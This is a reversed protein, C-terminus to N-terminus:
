TRVMTEPMERLFVYAVVAMSLIEHGVVQYAFELGQTATLHICTIAAISSIGFLFNATLTIPERRASRHTRLERFFQYCLLVYIMLAFLSYENLGPVALLADYMGHAVVILLFVPLFALGHTRPSWVARCLALGALGTAAIHFFNATLYRAVAIASHSAQFYGMNEELAFGLGVCGAVVLMELESRRRVLLPVLPLFLLLKCLEERLGVGVVYYAIGGIIDDAEEWGFAQQQYLVILLTPITSIMGLIVAALCLWGRLSRWSPVQAAHLCFLFWFTGTLMAMVIASRELGYWAGWTLQRLVEGWDGQLEGIKRRIRPNLAEQYGPQQLLRQIEPLDQRLLHTELARRRARLAQPHEGEREFAAAAAAYNQQQIEVKGIAWNALRAPPASEALDRLDDTPRGVLLSHWYALAIQRSTEDLPLTEVMRTIALYDEPGACGEALDLQELVRELPTLPPDASGSSPDLQFFWGIDGAAMPTVGWPSLQIAVSILGGGALIGLVLSWLFRPERTRRSLWVQLPSM